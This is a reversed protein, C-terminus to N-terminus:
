DSRSMAYGLVDEIAEEERIIFTVLYVDYTTQYPPYYLSYASLPRSCEICAVFGRWAGDEGVEFVNAPQHVGNASECHWDSYPIDARMLVWAEAVQGM